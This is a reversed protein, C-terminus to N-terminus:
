LMSSINIIRGFGRTQMGGLVLQTFHFPATVNVAMAYDWAELPFETIAHYHRKVANNVLIDVPGLRTETDGVLQEVQARDSLDAGHFQVDVGLQESLAACRTEHAGADGVDNLMLRCGQRGLAEAIAGGIGGMAGTILAIKGDSM